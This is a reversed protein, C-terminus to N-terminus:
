KNYYRNIIVKWSVYILISILIFLIITRNKFYFDLIFKINDNMWSLEHQHKVLTKDTINCITYNCPELIEPELILVKNKNYKNIIKTFMQPGTTSNICLIKNLYKCKYNKICYDIVNKLIESNPSAIIVGNNLCNLEYCSLFAELYNCNIKSIILEYDNNEILSDLPKISSADMDLYIGGYIYLIVYKAFDIKQHMFEYKNYLDLWQNKLLSKIKVDTWLIYNWKKHNNKITKINEKYKEPIDDEGQYWIQHIVKPIM